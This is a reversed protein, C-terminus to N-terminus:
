GFTALLLQLSAPLNEPLQSHKQARDLELLKQHSSFLQEQTFKKAQAILKTKQWGAVRLTDPNLKAWILLRVHRAFMLFLFDATAPTTAQNLLKVCTKANGAAFSELFRFVTAPLKFAVVEFGPGILKLIRAGLLKNEVFVFHVDRSKTLESLFGVDNPNSSLFDEVIVFQLPGFLPKSVATTLLESKTVTRGDLHLIESGTKRAQQVLNTLFERAQVQGDGHLIYSKM